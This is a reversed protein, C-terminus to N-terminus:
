PQVGAEGARVAFPLRNERPTLPCSYSTWGYACYPNYALNFDLRVMGGAELSGDLYRGGPYTERGAASDIFPIWLADEQEGGDMPRYLHLRARTGDRDLEVTGAVGYRRTEGTSTIVGIERAEPEVRLPLVLAWSPDVPYYRLPPFGGRVAKPAPSEPDLRLFRDKESRHELISRAYRQQDLLSDSGPRDPRPPPGESESGCGSLAAAALLVAGWRGTPRGGTPGERM